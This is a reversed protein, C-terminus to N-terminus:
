VKPYYQGLFNAFDACTLFREDLMELKERKNILSKVQAFAVITSGSDAFNYMLIGIELWITEIQHLREVPM